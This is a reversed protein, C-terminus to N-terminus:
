PGYNAVRPEHRSFLPASSHAPSLSFQHSHAFLTDLPWHLGHQFLEHPATHLLFLIVQPRGSLLSLKTCLSPCLYLRAPQENTKMPGDGNCKTWRGHSPATQVRHMAYEWGTRTYLDRCNDVPTFPKNKNGWSAFYNVAIAITHRHLLCLRVSYKGLTMLENAFVM